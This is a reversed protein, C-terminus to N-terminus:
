SPKTSETQKVEVDDAQKNKDGKVADAKLQQRELRSNEPSNDPNAKLNEESKPPTRLSAMMKTIKAVSYSLAKVPGSTILGQLHVRRNLRVYLVETDGERSTIIIICM